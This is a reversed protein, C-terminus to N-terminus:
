HNSGALFDTNVPLYYNSSISKLNYARVLKSCFKSMPYQWTLELYNGGFNLTKRAVNGLRNSFDSFPGPTDFSALIM